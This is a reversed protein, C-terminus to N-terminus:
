TDKLGKVLPRFLLLRVNVLLETGRTCFKSRVAHTPGGSKAKDLAGSEIETRGPPVADYERVMIEPPPNPPATASLQTPAGDLDEQEMLGADILRTFPVERLTGIATVVAAGVVAACSSRAGRVILKKGDITQNAATM